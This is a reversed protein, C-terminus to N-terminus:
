IKRTIVQFGNWWEMSQWSKPKIMFVSEFDTNAKLFKKNAMDVQFWTVDDVLIVCRESLYPLVLNLGNIQDEYKHPGDFYYVNITLHPEKSFLVKVAERYDLNYFEINKPNGFKELNGKLILENTGEPNLESFDDIGICRTSPNFLAASLLSSGNLTGIELYVGNKAFRKVIENILLRINETNMGYVKEGEIAKMRRDKPNPDLCYNDWNEDLIEKIKSKGDISMTYATM